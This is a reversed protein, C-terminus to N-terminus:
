LDSSSEREEALMVKDILVHAAGELKDPIGRNPGTDILTDAHTIPKMMQGIGSKISVLATSIIEM